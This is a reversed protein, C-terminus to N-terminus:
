KCITAGGLVLDGDPEYFVVAQGPTIARQPTDFDVRLGDGVPTVTGPAPKASYRVKIHARLPATLTEFPIFNPNAAYLSSAFETGKEGLVVQNTDPDIRLVFMPKGFAIGLGKRQGVTYHVIGKHQGLVNGEVDVFDGTPPLTGMRRELFAAYDKDPIFCIEMSDPKNATPLRLEAAKARVADKDAFAGLPMLIHSLQEQTLGYLVYTQDKASAAGRRLLYRGSAQDFEVKAYHGTALKDAGLAKAAQLMADFKLFRNCVICPNPTRGNIYEQSFYDIVDRSFEKRLDLVHHEIGLHDAVVRADEAMTALESDEGDWLHMTVGIVQYGQEKLVAAAVSSDVGGSMGIVVRKM